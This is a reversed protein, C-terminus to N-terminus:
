TEFRAAYDPRRKVLLQFSPTSGIGGFKNYDGIVHCRACHTESIKRGNEVNGESAAPISFSFAAVLALSTRLAFM